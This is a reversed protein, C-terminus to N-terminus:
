YGPAQLKCGMSVSCSEVYVSIKLIHAHTIAKNRVCIARVKSSKKRQLSEYFLIYMDLFIEKVNCIGLSQFKFSIHQVPMMLYKLRNGLM